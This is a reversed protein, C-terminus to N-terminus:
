RPHQRRMEHIERVIDRLPMPRGPKRRAIESLKAPLHVRKVVLTDPSAFVELRDSPRFPSHPIIMRGDPTIKVKLM